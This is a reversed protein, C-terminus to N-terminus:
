KSVTARADPAYASSGPGEAGVSFAKSLKSAVEVLEVEFEVEAIAEDVEVSM